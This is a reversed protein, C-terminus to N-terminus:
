ERKGRKAVRQFARIPATPHTPVPHSLHKYFPPPSVAGASSSPPPPPCLFIFQPTFVRGEDGTRRKRGDERGKGRRAILSRFAGERETSFSSPISTAESTRAAVRKRCHLTRCFPSSFLLKKKYQWKHMTKKKKQKTPKKKEVTESM